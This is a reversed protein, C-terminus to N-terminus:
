GKERAPVRVETPSRSRDGDSAHGSMGYPYTHGARVRNLVIGLVDADVARLAETATALEDLSTSGVRAVVIVGSAARALIAADTVPLLAPSDLIVVDARDTLAALLSTFADSELLESPNSPQPGSALIEVPLTAHRRLAAEVSLEGRLVRTLGKDSTVGLMTALTPRRLDADVLVVRQGAQAFAMGLNAAILTKGESPLPSAVVLSRVHREASLARLNTRLRRYGEASGSLDDSMVVLPRKAAHPDDAIRALIPAGLSAAADLDGKIRRDLTERLVAAAIGLALGLLAGLALYLPKRPSVPSTPLRAPGTVTVKVPSTGDGQPTELTKVFIAFQAAVANAIARALQASRNNVTVNILVTDVPVSAGIQAQLHEVSDHLGLQAIVTRVVTPSSVIKAYSRVRQQSFLGGQYTQSLDGPAVGSTSVFLETRAQYIPTRTWALAAAAGTVVLVSVVLLVWRRKLLRVYEVLDVLRNERGAM